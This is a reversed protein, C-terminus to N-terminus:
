VRAGKFRAKMRGFAVTGTIDDGEVTGQISIVMHGLPGDGEAKCAFSNGDMTCDKLDSEIGMASAHGTLAAGDAKLTLTCDTSGLPSTVKGQYTGDIAM